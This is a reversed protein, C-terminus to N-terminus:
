ARAALQVFPSITETAEAPTLAKDWLSKGDVRMRLRFALEDSTFYVHPSIMLSVGVRMGIAYQKPDVLLIDGADGLKPLKETFLIPRGFLTAAPQSAPLFVPVGATGIALNMQYLQPITNGNAIWIANNQGGPWLRAWMNVINEWVITDAAQGSEATVTILAPSNRIGEPQNGGVGNLFADDLHWGAAGTLAERFQTSFNPSDEVLETSVRGLFALKKAGLTTRRLKATDVNLTATEGSWNAQIGGYLKRGSHDPGDWQNVGLTQSTMTFIRARPRIIESELSTDFIQAALPSPVAFGGDSDIITGQARHQLRPDWRQSALVSFYEGEDKWGGWDTSDLGARQQLESWKTSRVEGGKGFIADDRHTSGGYSHTETGDANFTYSGMVSSEPFKANEDFQNQLRDFELQEANGFERDESKTLELIGSMKDLLADQEKQGETKRSVRDEIQEFM